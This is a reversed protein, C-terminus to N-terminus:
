IFTSDMASTEPNNRARAEFLQKILASKEQELQTIRDSKDSVEKTLLRNQEKLMNVAQQQGPVHPAAAASSSSTHVTAKCPTMLESLCRNVDQLKPLLQSPPMQPGESFPDTKGLNKQLDQVNHIHHLYWDRAREVLELGQLLLDKEHEMEKMRKLMAYDVGNTITHRRHEGRSRQHRCQDAMGQGTSESHSRCMPKAEEGMRPRDAGRRCTAGEGTTPDTGNVGRVGLPQPKYLPFGGAKGPVKVPARPAGVQYNERNHSNLMSSRLGLVFREFTLYGDPPAVKRLCLLVGPPLERTDAGRWRSEIEQIHVYGRREDDLIDFLTRLSHLFARPLGQTSSGAPPEMVGPCGCVALASDPPSRSTVIHEGSM